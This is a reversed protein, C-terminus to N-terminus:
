LAHSVVVVCRKDAGKFVMLVDSVFYKVSGATCEQDAILTGPHKFFRVRSRKAPLAERAFVHQLRSLGGVSRALRDTYADRPIRDIRPRGPLPAIAMLLLSFPLVVRRSKRRLVTATAAPAAAALEIGVVACAM